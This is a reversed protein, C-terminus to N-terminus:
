KKPVFPDSVPAFLSKLGKVEVPTLTGLNGSLSYLLWSIQPM